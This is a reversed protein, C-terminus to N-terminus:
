KGYFWGLPNWENQMQAFDQRHQAATQRYWDCYDAHAQRIQVEDYFARTFTHAEFQRDVEAPPLPILYTFPEPM